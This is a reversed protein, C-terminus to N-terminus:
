ACKVVPRYKGCCTEEKSGDDRYSQLTGLGLRPGSLVADPMVRHARATEVRECPDVHSLISRSM